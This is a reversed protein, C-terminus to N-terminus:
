RKSYNKAKPEKEQTHGHDMAQSGSNGQTKRRSGDQGRFASILMFGTVGKGKVRRGTRIKTM